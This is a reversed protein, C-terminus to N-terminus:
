KRTLKHHIDLIQPIVMRSGDNYIVEDALHLKEEDAMQHRIRSEVWARDVQDRQMVRKIRLDETAYVLISIDMDKYGGSEFLIAAEEILYPFHSERKGAWHFFSERVEPHVISNIKELADNNNFIISALAAKKIGHDGYISNGFFGKIQKIIKPDTNMLSKAQQDANFVPIGLKKFVACIVTKGSGIGGTVGVKTM